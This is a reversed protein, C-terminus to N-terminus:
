KQFDRIESGRLQSAGSSRRDARYMHGKQFLFSVVDPLGKSAPSEERAKAEASQGNFVVLWYSPPCGALNDTRFGDPDRDEAAEHVM